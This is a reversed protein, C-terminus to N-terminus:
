SSIFTCVLEGSTLNFRLKDTGKAKGSSVIQSDVVGYTVLNSVTVEYTSGSFINQINTDKDKKDYIYSEAALCLDKELSSQRKEKNTKIMNLYLPFSLSFIIVLIAIIGILEILTFGKKNM